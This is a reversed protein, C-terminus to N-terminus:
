VSKTRYDDTTTENFTKKIFWPMKSNTCSPGENGDCQEGDWLPDNVYVVHQLRKTNGSVCSPIGSESSISLENCSLLNIYYCYM